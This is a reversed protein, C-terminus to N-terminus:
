SSTKMQGCQSCTWYMSEMFTGCFTCKWGLPKHGRHDGYGTDAGTYSPQPPIPKRQVAPQTALQPAPSECIECNMMSGHNHFTCQPCEWAAGNDSGSSLPRASSSTAGGFNAGTDSSPWYQHAATPAQPDDQRSRQQAEAERVLRSVPRGHPNIDRAGNQRTNAFGPAAPTSAPRSSTRPPFPASSGAPTPTSTRSSSASAIPQLGQEPDWTLGGTAPPGALGDYIRDDEEQEYLEQLAQAIAISNADDMEANTRFGNRLADDAAKNGAQTGTACGTDVKATNAKNRTQAANALMDRLRRRSRPPPPATATNGGLRRGPDFKNKNLKAREQAAARARRRVEEVPIRSGGLSQGKGLFGEGTFGRLQL